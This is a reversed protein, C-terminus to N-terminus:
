EESDLEGHLRERAAAIFNAMLAAFLGAFLGLIAGLAVILASSLGTDLERQQGLEMLRGSNLSSKQLKAQLLDNKVEAIEVSVDALDGDTQSLSETLSEANSLRAELMKIRQDLKVQLNDVESDVLKVIRNMIAKHLSIVRESQAANAKTELVILSTDKPHELTVSLKELDKDVNAERDQKLAQPVFVRESLEMVASPAIVPEQSGGDVSVKPLKCISAYSADVSAEGRGFAVIAAVATIVAAVIIVVWKRRWLSIALDILDIEDDFRPPNPAPPQSPRIENM